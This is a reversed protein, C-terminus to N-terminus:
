RRRRGEESASRFHWRSWDAACFHWSIGRLQSPPRSVTVAGVARGDEGPLSDRQLRLRTNEPRVSTGKRPVLGGARQHAQRLVPREGKDRIQPPNSRNQWTVILLSNLVIGLPVSDGNNTWRTNKPWTNLTFDLRSGTVTRREEGRGKSPTGMPSQDQSQDRELNRGTKGALSAQKPTLDQTEVPVRSVICIAYFQSRKDRDGIPPCRGSYTDLRHTAM